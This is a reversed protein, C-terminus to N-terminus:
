KKEATHQPPTKGFSYSKCNACKLDKPVESFRESTTSIRETRCGAVCLAFLILLIRITM